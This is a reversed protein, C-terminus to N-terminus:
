FPAVSGREKAQEALQSERTPSLWSTRGPARKRSQGVREYFYDGFATPEATTGSKSAVIFVTDPLVISGEIQLVITPDTTDLVKLPLGAEGVGLVREFVLPALSSGGMGMHVVYQFGENRVEGAFGTFEEIAGPWRRPLMYGGWRTAFGRRPTRTARGCPLM